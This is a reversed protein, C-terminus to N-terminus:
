VEPHPPLELATTTPTAPSSSGLGTTPEPSMRSQVARWSSLVERIFTRSDEPSMAERIMDSFGSHMRAMDDLRTSYWGGMITEIYGMRQPPIKPGDPDANEEELGWLLFHDSLAPPIKHGPLVQIMIKNHASLTLLHRLQMAHANTDDTSHIIGEEGILFWSMGLDTLTRRLFAQSRASKLLTRRRVEMMPLHPNIAQTLAMAYDPTQLLGPICRSNWSRITRAANDIRTLREVNPVGYEAEEIRGMGRQDPARLQRILDETSGM